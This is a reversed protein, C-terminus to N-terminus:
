ECISSRMMACMGAVLASRWRERVALVHMRAV